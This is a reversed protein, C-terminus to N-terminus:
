SKVQSQKAAHKKSERWKRHSLSMGNKTARYILWKDWLFDVKTYAFQKIIIEEEKM